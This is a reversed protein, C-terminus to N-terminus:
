SWDEHSEGLYDRIKLEYALVQKVDHLRNAEILHYRLEALRLDHLTREMDNLFEIGDRRQAENDTIRVINGVRRMDLYRSEDFGPKFSATIVQPKDYKKDAVGIKEVTVHKPHCWSPDAGEKAPEQHKYVYYFGNDYFYFPSPILKRAAEKTPAVVIASDYSYWDTNTTQSLRYVNM